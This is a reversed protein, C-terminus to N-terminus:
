LGHADLVHLAAYVYLGKGGAARRHPGMPRVFVYLRTARGQVPRFFVAGSVPRVFFNRKQRSAPRAPPPLVNVGATTDALRRFARRITGPRTPAATMDM